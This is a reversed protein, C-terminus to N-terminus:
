TSETREFSAETKTRTKCGTTTAKDTKMAVMRTVAIAMDRSLIDRM